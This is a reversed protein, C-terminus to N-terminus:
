YSGYKGFVAHIVGLWMMRFSSIKNKDILINVILRIALGLTLRKKWAWSVYQQRVLFLTNRFYYYRRIPSYSFFNRGLFRVPPADSLAHGMEQDLCVYLKLGAARVRFCWDTDTYDVFLKPDYHLGSKWTSAKVLMGSTILVDVEVLGKEDDSTSLVRILGDAEKYIPFRKKEGERRDYFIPSVAACNEGKVQLALHADVLNAIMNEPLESDQDFTAVYDCKNELALEFGHNLAFGLGMNTGFDIYQVKEKKSPFQNLFDKGGGNDLFVLCDVQDLLRLLLNNLVLYDPYYGVVIAGVM